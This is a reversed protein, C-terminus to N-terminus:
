HVLNCQVNVDVSVYFSFRGKGSFIQYLYCCYYYKKKFFYFFNNNKATSVICLSINVCEADLTVNRTEILLGAVFVRWFELERELESIGFFRVRLFLVM